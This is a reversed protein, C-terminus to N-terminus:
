YEEVAEYQFSAVEFKMIEDDVIVNDAESTIGQVLMRVLTDAAVHWGAVMEAPLPVHQVEFDIERIKPV